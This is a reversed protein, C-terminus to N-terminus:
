HQTLGPHAALAFSKPNLPSVDVEFASEDLDDGATALVPSFGADTAPHRESLAQTLGETIM